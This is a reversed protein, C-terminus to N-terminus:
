IDIFRQILRGSWHTPSTRGDIAILCICGAEPDAQPQHEDDPMAQACDGTGYREDGDILTGALMQTLEVGRHGHMPVAVGPAAKLLFGRVPARWLGEIRSIRIGPAVWRWPGVTEDRLAAPMAIGPPLFGPGPHRPRSAAARPAAAAGLTALARDRADAAMAAPAGDELLIGGVAEFRGALHRCAACGEIHAAVVLRLAPALTGAAFALLLDDQPHHHITM